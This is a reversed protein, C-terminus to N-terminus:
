IPDWNAVEIWLSVYFLLFSWIAQSLSPFLCLTLSFYVSVFPSFLLLFYRQLTSDSLETFSISVNLRRRTNIKDMKSSESPMNWLRDRKKHVLSGVSPQVTYVLSPTVRSSMETSLFGGYSNVLLRIRVDWLSPITLRSLVSIETFHVVLIKQQKRNLKQFSKRM